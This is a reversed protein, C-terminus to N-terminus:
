IGADISIIRFDFETTHTPAFVAAQKTTVVVDKVKPGKAQRPPSIMPTERADDNIEAHFKQAM